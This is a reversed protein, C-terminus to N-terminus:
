RQGLRLGRPRSLAERPLIVQFRSGVQPTSQVVVSGHYVEVIRRALALGLGAGGTDLSRTQDARFFPEFIRPLDDPTIGVGTDQVEVLVASAPAATATRVTITGGPLTHNLANDLLIDFVRTLHEERAIVTPLDPQFVRILRLSRADAATQLADMCGALLANLDIRELTGDELLELRSMYLIDELIGNLRTTVATIQEARERRKEPEVLFQLLHASTNIISLPTRFDHSLNTILEQMLASRSVAVALQQREAAIRSRQLAVFIIFAQTLINFVILDKLLFPPLDSRSGGFVALSVLTLVSVLVTERLPLVVTSFLPLFILFNYEVLPPSSEAAVVLIIVLGIALALYVVVRFSHFLRNLFYVFVIIVIGSLHPLPNLGVLVTLLLSLLTMPVLLLMISNLLRTQDFHASTEPPAAASGPSPALWQRAAYYPRELWRRLWHLIRHSM